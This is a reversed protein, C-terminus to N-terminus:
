KKCAPDKVNKPDKCDVKPAATLPTEKTKEDPIPDPTIDYKIESEASYRRYLRFETENRTLVSDASMDIQAKYPLLFEHGSIDQYDYDLITHALHIPFTAPINEANLTVRYVVHLDKDIYILGSYAPFIHERREYDVAWQSHSQEVYYKFVMVLKNRLTGWHDWTFGADTSPNFIEKLMSGFEGSSTAGGLNQYNQTAPSNNVLILKYDEKQEFYSLRVTLTDLTQFSPETSGRMAYRSGPEGAAKRRTVQTCLFNPLSKTYNLAYERVDRIIEAQEAASPVPPLKPEVPKVAAPTAVTLNASRDRLLNLAERTKPGIGIALMEEIQRDTLKDTLKVNKLYKAIDGDPTKLEVSSKLFSVLKDVSLSQAMASICLVLAACLVRVSM